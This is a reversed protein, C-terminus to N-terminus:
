TCTFSLTNSCCQVHALKSIPVSTTYRPGLCSATRPVSRVRIGACGTNLGCHLWGVLIPWSSPRFRPSVASFRKGLCGIYMAMSKLLDCTDSLTGVLLSSGTQVCDIACPPTQFTFSFPTSARRRRFLPLTAANHTVCTGVVRGRNCARTWHQLAATSEVHIERM